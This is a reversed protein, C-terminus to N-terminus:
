WASLGPRRLHVTVGDREAAANVVFGVRNRNLALARLDHPGATFAPLRFAGEAGSVVLVDGLSRRFGPGSALPTGRILVDATPVGDSDVASGRVVEGSALELRVETGVSEGPGWGVARSSGRRDFAVISWADSSVVDMTFRGGHDAICTHMDPRSLDLARGVNPWMVVIAAAAPTGEATEVAGVCRGVAPIQLEQVSRDADASGTVPVWSRGSRWFLGGSGRRLFWDELVVHEGDVIPAAAAVIGGVVALIEGGSSRARDDVWSLRLTRAEARRLRVDLPGTSPGGEAVDVVAPAFGEAVVLLKRQDPGGLLEFTGASSTAVADVRSNLVDGDAPLWRVAAGRVPLGREDRVEGKTTAMDLVFDTGDAIVPFAGVVSQSAVQIRVGRWPARFCGSGDTRVVDLAAM